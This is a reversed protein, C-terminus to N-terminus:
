YEWLTVHSLCCGLSGPMSLKFDTTLYGDNKYREIDVKSGDVAPWLDINISSSKNNKYFSELRQPALHKSGIVYAKDFNM